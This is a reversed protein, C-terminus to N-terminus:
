NVVKGAPIYKIKKIDLSYLEPPDYFRFNKYVPYHSERNFPNSDRTFRDFFMLTGQILNTQQVSQVFFSSCSPFFPCNDGDVDSILLWYANILTKTFIYSLSNESYSYDRQSYFSKKLYDPESKEWRQWDTQAVSSVAILLSFLISVKIKNRISYHM